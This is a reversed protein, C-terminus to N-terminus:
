QALEIDVTGTFGAMTVARFWARDVYNEVFRPAGGSPLFEGTGVWTVGDDHSRQVTVLGTYTGSVAAYVPTNRVAM